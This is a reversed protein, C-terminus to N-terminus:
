SLLAISLHKVVISFKKYKKGSTYSIWYNSEVVLFVVGMVVSDPETGLLLM